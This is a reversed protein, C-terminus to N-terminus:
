IMGGGGQGGLGGGRGGSFGSGPLKGIMYGSSEEVGARPVHVVEVKIPDPLPFHKRFWDGIGDVTIMQGPKLNASFDEMAAAPLHGKNQASEPMTLYYGVSGMLVPMAKPDITVGKAHCEDVLCAVSRLSQRLHEPDIAAM